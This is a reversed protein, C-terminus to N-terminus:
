IGIGGLAHDIHKHPDAQRFFLLQEAPAAYDAMMKDAPGSQVTPVAGGVVVFATGRPRPDVRPVMIVLQSQGLIPNPNPDPNANLM